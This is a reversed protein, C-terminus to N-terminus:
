KEGGYRQQAPQDLAAFGSREALAGDLRHLAGLAQIAHERETENLDALRLEHLGPTDEDAGQLANRVLSHADDVSM